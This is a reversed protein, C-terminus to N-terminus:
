REEARMHAVVARRAKYLNARVAEPTLQLEEAIETPTYGEYTWALVQRQRPPLKDLLRLVDYRQEIARIDSSTLLSSASGRQLAADDVLQERPGDAIHRGWRRSAVQRAWAAPERVSSWHRYLQFMTEQAIDTADAVPAGQWCLFRVLSPMFQSYFEAFAVDYECEPAGLRDEGLPPAQVPPESESSDGIM